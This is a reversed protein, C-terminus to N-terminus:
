RKEDETVVHTKKNGDVYYCSAQGHQKALVETWGRANSENVNHPHVHSVGAKDTYHIEWSRNM